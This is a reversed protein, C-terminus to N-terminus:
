NGVDRSVVTIPNPYEIPGLATRVTPQVRLKVNTPPGDGGVSSALDIFGQLNDNFFRALDLEVGVPVDTPTGPPLEIEQDFTGTVTEQDNLLLTWDMQTLRASVQNTEPNTAEVHLTFSFPLEGQSLASTLRAIDTAGLDNYSEVKRLEVGALRADTARDIRFKVDKLSRLQRLTQCSSLLLVGGGVLLIGLWFFPRVTRSLTSVM